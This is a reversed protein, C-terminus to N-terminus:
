QVRLVSSATLNYSCAFNSARFFTMLINRLACGLIFNHQYTATVRIHETTASCATNQGNIDVCNVNPAPTYYVSSCSPNSSPNCLLTPATGTTNGYIILNNLKNIPTLNRNTTTNIPFILNAGSGNDRAITSDSFYRAGNQVSKNLINQHYFAFGFESIGVVLLLLFPLIIAFEVLAAGKQKKKFYSKNVSM